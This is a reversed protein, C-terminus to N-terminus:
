NPTVLEDLLASLDLLSGGRADAGVKDALGQIQDFPGGGVVVRIMPHREHICAIVCRISEVRFNWTSSLGVVAPRFEEIAQFFAPESTSASLFLTEWGEAELVDCVMRIALDHQEGGVTAGLFRRARPTTRDVSSVQSMIAETAGTAYHEMAPSLRNTQWMVGIEQQSVRFVHEYIEPLGAGDDMARRVIALATVRDGALLARLYGATADALAPISRSTGPLERSVVLLASVAADLYDAAAQAPAGELRILLTERMAELADCFHSDPFGLNCLVVNAWIAYSVFLAPEDSLLAESLATLPGQMDQVRQHDADGTLRVRMEPHAGLHSDLTAQALSAVDRRISQGARLRATRPDLGDVV